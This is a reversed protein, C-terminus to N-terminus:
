RRSQTDRYLISSPYKWIKIDRVEVKRTKGGPTTVTVKGLAYSCTCTIVARKAGERERLLGAVNRM